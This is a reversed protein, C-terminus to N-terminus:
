GGARGSAGNGPWNSDYAAACVEVGASRADVGGEAPPRNEVETEVATSAGM